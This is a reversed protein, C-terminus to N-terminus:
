LLLQGWKQAASPGAAATSSLHYKLDYKRKEKVSEKRRTMLKDMREFIRLCISEKFTLGVKVLFLHFNQLSISAFALTLSKHDM